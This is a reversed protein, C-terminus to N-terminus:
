SALRVVRGRVVSRMVADDRATTGPDIRELVIERVNLEILHRALADLCDDRDREDRDKGSLIVCTFGNMASLSKLLLRRRGESEKKAHLRRQNPMLLARLAQRLHPRDNTSAITACLLYHRQRLSEDIGAIFHSM